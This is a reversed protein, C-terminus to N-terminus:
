VFTYLNQAATKGAQADGQQRIVPLYNALQAWDRPVQQMDIVLDGLVLLDLNARAACVLADQPTCVIPEGRVNFSTNVLMPCGSAQYFAELLAAYRPADAPDVTQPRASGNVHTIGPLDLKSQVQCTELMFPSAQSLDFHAEAMRALVSPAFPRFGERKKVKENLKERIQSDMPNALISRSGLARPGMEMAGDFWGIVKYELLAAVVRELLANLRGTYDESNLSTDALLRKFTGQSYSPGYFAHQLRKLPMSDESLAQHALAAAGLCGGDDGAAPQIFVDKFPSERRIRGNAVCNLAVGGALCLHDLGTKRHLYEVKELLIAEMVVQLSCAIDHHFATLPEHSQRPGRGFLTEMEKTFMQQGSVYDFYRMNLRFGPGPESEVLTRMANVYRPRGYPALGMVKYEGNNVRFGLFATITAYFLGLSHPFSVREFVKLGSANGASYTTTDWEGVGDVVLCAAEQFGSFYFSSAAHSLHHPFSLIKGEFGWHERIKWFPREADLWSLDGKNLLMEAQFLQRSLKEQPREYYAIADIEGPHLGAQRLCFKFAQTPLRADHKIRSFREEAAMAM